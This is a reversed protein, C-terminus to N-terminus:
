FSPPAPPPPPGTSEGEQGSAEFRETGLELRLNPLGSHARAYMLEHRLDGVTNAIPFSLSLTSLTGLAEGKSDLYASGSDGPVGPTLARLTHAWHKDEARDADATGRQPSLQTLGGRLSSNGYSYVTEGKNVRSSSLGVPGGWFPLSPNVLKRSQDDLRILAFDNYACTSADSEKLQRMAVWSSYVLRGTAVQKGDGTASGGENFSVQSGLPLSTAKCGNTEDSEGTGACHASQGIYVAGSEDTFVFNSTCQGAGDTYTQVGPHIVASEPSGWGSSRAVLSEHPKGDKPSTSNSVASIDGMGGCASLLIFVLPLAGLAISRQVRTTLSCHEVSEVAM